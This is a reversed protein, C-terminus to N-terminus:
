HEFLARLFLSKWPCHLFGAASFCNTLLVVEHNKMFGSLFCHYSISLIYWWIKDRAKILTYDILKTKAYEVSDSPLKFQWFFRLIWLVVCDRWHCFALYQDITLYVTLILLENRLFQGALWAAIVKVHSYTFAPFLPILYMKPKLLFVPPKKWVPLFLIKFSLLIPIWMWM